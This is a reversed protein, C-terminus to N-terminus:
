AILDLPLPDKPRADKAVVANQVLPIALKMPYPKRDWDWDSEYEVAELEPDEFLTELNVAQVLLAQGM